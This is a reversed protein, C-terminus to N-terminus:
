KKEKYSSVIKNEEKIGERILTNNEGNREQKREKKKKKETKKTIKETHPDGKVGILSYKFKQPFCSKNKRMIKSDGTQWYVCSPEYLVLRYGTAWDSLEGNDSFSCKRKPKSFELVELQPGIWRHSILTKPQTRERVWPFYNLPKIKKAKM